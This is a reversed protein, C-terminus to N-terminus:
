EDIVSDGGDTTGGKGGQKNARRMEEDQRCQNVIAEFDSLYQRISELQELTYEKRMGYDDFTLNKWLAENKKLAEYSLFAKEGKIYQLKRYKCYNELHDVMLMIKSIQTIKDLKLQSNNQEQERVKNKEQEMNEFDKKLIGITNNKTM